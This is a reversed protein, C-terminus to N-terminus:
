RGETAALKAATWGRATLRYWGGGVFSDRKYEVLGARVLARLGDTYVKKDSLIGSWSLLDSRKNIWYGLRLRRLTDAVRKRNYRAVIKDLRAATTTATM